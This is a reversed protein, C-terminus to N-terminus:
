STAGEVGNRVLDLVQAVSLTTRWPHGASLAIFAGAGEHSVAVVDDLSIAVEGGGVLPLFVFERRASLLESTIETSTEVLEGAASIWDIVEATIGAAASVAAALRGHMEAVNRGNFESGEFAAVDAEIDSRIEDLVFRAHEITEPLDTRARNGSM